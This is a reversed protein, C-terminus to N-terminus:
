HTAQQVVWEGKRPAHVSLLDILEGSEGGRRITVVFRTTGAVTRYEIGPQANEWAWASSWLARGDMDVVTAVYLDVGGLIAQSLSVFVGMEDLQTVDLTTLYGLREEPDRVWAAPRVPPLEHGTDVSVRRWLGTALQNGDDIWYVATASDSCWFLGDVAPVLWHPGKLKRDAHDEFLVAGGPDVLVLAVDEDRVAFCAVRGEPTVFADFHRSSGVPRTWLVETGRMLCIWRRGDDTLLRYEGSSSESVVNSCPEDGTFSHATLIIGALALSAYM